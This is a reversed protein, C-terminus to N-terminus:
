RNYHPIPSFDNRHLTEALQPSPRAGPWCWRHCSPRSHLCQSVTHYRTCAKCQLFCGPQRAQQPAKLGATLTSDTRHPATVSPLEVPTTVQFMLVSACEGSTSTFIEYYELLFILQDVQVLETELNLRTHLPLEQLSQTLVPLDIFLAPIQLFWLWGHSCVEEFLLIEIIATWFMCTFWLLKHFSQDYVQNKALSDMEWDKEDSFRFQTFSDGSVSLVIFFYTFICIYIYWKYNFWLVYPSGGPLTKTKGATVLM